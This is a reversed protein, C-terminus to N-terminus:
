HECPRAHNSSLSSLREEHARERSCRRRLRAREVDVDRALQDHRVHEQIFPRRQRLQRRGLALVLEFWRAHVLVSHLVAFVEVDHHVGAPTQDHRSFRGVELVAEEANRMLACSSVTTDEARPPLQLLDHSPVAALLVNDGEAFM